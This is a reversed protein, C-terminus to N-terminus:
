AAVQMSQAAVLGVYATEKLTFRQSTQKNIYTPPALAPAPAPAPLPAPTQALLLLQVLLVKASLLVCTRTPPLTSLAQTLVTQAFAICAVPTNMKGAAHDLVASVIEQPSPSVSLVWRTRHPLTMAMATTTTTNGVRWTVRGFDIKM